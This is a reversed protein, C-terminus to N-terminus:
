SGGSPSHTLICGPLCASPHLLTLFGSPSNLLLGGLVAQSSLLLFHVLRELGLQYSHTVWLSGASPARWQDAWAAGLEHGLSISLFLVLTYTHTAGEEDLVADAEGVLPLTAGAELVFFILLKGPLSAMQGFQSVQRISFSNLFEERFFCVETFLEQHMPPSSFPTPRRAM